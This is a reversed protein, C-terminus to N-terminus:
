ADAAAGAARIGAVSRPVSKRQCGEELHDPVTRGLLAPPQLAMACNTISPRQARPRKSGALRHNEKAEPTPLGNLFDRAPSNIASATMSSAKGIRARGAAQVVQVIPLNFKKAFEFDREDHAPVAMIAGTGYTSSCTIPSGSRFRSTREGPQHRVRRHVRRDKGQGTRHTGPREQQRRVQSQLAEVATADTGAHHDSRGAQAGAVAGHLDRRVAHRAAHHLRPNTERRTEAFKFIWKRAKAAASGTGSCKRSRIAGISAHRSRQLLREAYATIRLMWQRMPKRVVPFGGVESKGDIVEENALVTGLEPCWNVPAEASM